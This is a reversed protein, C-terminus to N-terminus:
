FCLHHIADIRITLEHRQGTKIRSRRGIRHARPEDNPLVNYMFSNSPCMM